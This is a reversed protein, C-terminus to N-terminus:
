VVSLDEGSKKRWINNKYWMHYVYITQKLLTDFYVAFLVQILCRLWFNTCIIHKPDIPLHTKFILHLELFICVAQKVCFLMMIGWFDFIVALFSVIQFILCYINYDSAGDKYIVTASFVIHLLMFFILFKKRLKRIRNIKPDIEAANEATEGENQEANKRASDEIMMIKM